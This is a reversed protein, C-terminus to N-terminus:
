RTRLVLAAGVGALMGFLHAEWSVDAKGPLVGWVMAGYGIGVALAVGLPVPRRDILGRAVLFGFWGFILGSAGVHLADRALLWVLFGGGLVIVANVPGALRGATLAVAGGLVVLPPTNVAAHELSGHLLPMMPIGILGTADRPDLGLMGNLAYDTAMNAVAVLWITALLWGVWALRSTMTMGNEGTRGHPALM